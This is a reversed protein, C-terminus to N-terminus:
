RPTADGELRLKRSVEPLTSQWGLLQKARDASLARLRAYWRRAEQEDALLVCIEAATYAV